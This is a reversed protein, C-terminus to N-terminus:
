GRLPMISSSAPLLRHPLGKLHQLPDKFLGGRLVSAPPVETKYPIEQVRIKHGRDPVGELQRNLVVQLALPQTALPM